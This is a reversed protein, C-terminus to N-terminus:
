RGPGGAERVLRDFEGLEREVAGPAGTVKFFWSTGGAGPAMVAVMRRGGAEDTFDVRVVGDSETARAESLTAVPGLGLQGRWRNINNLAGGGDGPLASATVRPADEGPGALYAGALTPSANPDRRWHAPQSWGSLREVLLAAAAPPPAVPGRMPDSGELRFSRAFAAFEAQVGDIASRPGVAKLFWSQGDGPTIIAGV